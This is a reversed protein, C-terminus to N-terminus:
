SVGEKEEDRSSGSVHKAFLTGDFFLSKLSLDSPKRHMPTGNGRSGATPGGSRLVSRPPILRDSIPSKDGNVCASSHHRDYFGTHLTVCVRSVIHISHTGEGCYGLVIPKTHPVTPFPGVRVHQLTNSHIGEGCYGMCFRNHQLPVRGWLEVNSPSSEREEM